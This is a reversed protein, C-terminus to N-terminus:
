FGGSLSFADVFVKHDSINILFHEPEARRDTDGVKVRRLRIEPQDQKSSSLVSFQVNGWRSVSETDEEEM